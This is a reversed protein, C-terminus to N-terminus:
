LAAMFVGGASFPGAEGAQAASAAAKIREILLQARARLRNVARAVAAGDEFHPKNAAAQASRFASAAGDLTFAHVHPYAAAAALAKVAEAWDEEAGAPVDAGGGAGFVAAAVDRSAGSLHQALFGEPVSDPWRVYTRVDAVTIDPVPM